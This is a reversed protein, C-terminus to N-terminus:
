VKQESLRIEIRSHHNCCYPMKIRCFYMLLIFMICAVFFNFIMRFFYIDTDATKSVNMIFIYCLLVWVIIMICHFFIYVGMEPNFSKIQYQNIEVRFPQKCIECIKHKEPNQQIWEQLCSLHFGSENCACVNHVKSEELCIRCTM